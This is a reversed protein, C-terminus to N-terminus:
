LDWYFLYGTMLFIDVKDRMVAPFIPRSGLVKMVWSEWLQSRAVGIETQPHSRWLATDMVDQEFCIILTYDDISVIVNCDM